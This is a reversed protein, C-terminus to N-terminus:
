HYQNVLPLNDIIHMKITFNHHPQLLSIHIELVNIRFKNLFLDWTCINQRNIELQLSFLLSISFGLLTIVTRM